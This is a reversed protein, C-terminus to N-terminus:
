RRARCFCSATITGDARTWAKAFRAEVKEAEATEGRRRLCEALGHLSWGNETHVQLDARYVDEAESARGAELLLAGLAHRVPQMWGRPEDYPLAIEKDVAARLAAFAEDHKGQRFLIEGKMMYRGVDLVLPAETFGVFVGEPIQAAAKEFEASESLARPIRNTNAYAIGRAYHWLAPALHLKSKPAPEELIEEWMGFRIMVHWLISHFGEAYEPMSEFASAPIDTMIDRAAKLAIAKNGAFMASYAIFHYNHGRYLEYVGQPGVRSKYRKDVEVARINTDISRGHRGTRIYIHAPMHVLHGAGPVLTELREAAPMANEVQPSAEMTHIFLHNALVHNPHGALVRELTVVIEETGPQPRGERTWQNWPSLDLLSEAFLAGVDPDDPYQRWVQRMADAYDRDLQARETPPPDAYRKALARILAQHAPAAKDRLALARQASAHARRAVIPDTMPLNINPGLAYAIGWWGMPCDPDLEVVREFSRVAEDHNFGYTLILGQNFYKQAPKSETTVPRDYVALGDFLQATPRACAGCLVLPVAHAFLRRILM